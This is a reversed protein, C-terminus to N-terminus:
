LHELPQQGPGGQGELALAVRHVANGLLAIRRGSGIRTLAPLWRISPIASRSASM